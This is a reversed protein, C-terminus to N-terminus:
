CHLYGNLFVMIVHVSGNYVRSFNSQDEDNDRYKTTFKKGNYYSLSDEATSGKVYRSVSM